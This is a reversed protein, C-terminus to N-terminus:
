HQSVLSWASEKSGLIDQIFVDWAEGQTINQVEEGGRHELEGSIVDGMEPSYGGILELVSFNDNETRVGIMGQRPGILEITGKMENEM